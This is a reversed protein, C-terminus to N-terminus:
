LSRFFVLARVLPRAPHLQARGTALAGWVARWAGNRGVKAVGRESSKERTDLAAWRNWEAQPVSLAQLPVFYRAELFRLVEPLQRRKELALGSLDPSHFAELAGRRVIVVFDQESVAGRRGTVRIVLGFASPLVRSWWGRLARVVFHNEPGRLAAEAGRGRLEPPLIGLAKGRLLEVQDVFRGEALSDRLWGELEEREFCVLRRHPARARLGAVPGGVWDSLDEEESFAALVREGELVAFVPRSLTVGGGTESARASEEASSRGRPNFLDQFSRWDCSLDV